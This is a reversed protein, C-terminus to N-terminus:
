SFFSAASICLSPNETVIYPGSLVLPEFLSRLRREADFGLLCCSITTGDSNIILLSWTYLVYVCTLWPVLSSKLPPIRAVRSKLNRSVSVLPCLIGGGVRRSSSSCDQM